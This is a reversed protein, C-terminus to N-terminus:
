LSSFQWRDAVFLLVLIVLIGVRSIKGLVKVLLKIEMRLIIIMYIIRIM